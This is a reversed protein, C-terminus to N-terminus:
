SARTARYRHRMVALEDARNQEEKSVEFEYQEQRREKLRQLTLHERNAKTLVKRAEDVLAQVRAIEAKTEEMRRELSVLFREISRWLELNVTMGREVSRQSFADRRYGELTTLQGQLSQLEGMLRGLVRQADKKRAERLKLLPALRFSFRKAM